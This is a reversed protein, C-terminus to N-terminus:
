YLSIKENEQRKLKRIEEKVDAIVDEESANYVNMENTFGGICYHFSNPKIDSKLIEIRVM